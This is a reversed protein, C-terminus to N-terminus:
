KNQLKNRLEYLKYEPYSVKETRGPITYKNQFEDIEIQTMKNVNLQHLAIKLFCKFFMNLFSILLKFGINITTLENKKLDYFAKDLTNLKIDIDNLKSEYISVSENEFSLLKHRIYSSRDTFKLVKREADIRDIEDKKLRVGIIEGSM